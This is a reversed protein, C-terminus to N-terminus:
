EGELEPNKDVLEGDEYRYAISLNGEQDYWKALGHLKGDVYPAEQMLTGNDYYKTLPGNLVGNNYNRTEIVKKRKYVVYEGDLQDSHYYSKTEVYGQKDFKLAVGQKKGENFTELLTIAGEKDYTIWSGHKLGNLVDGEAVIRQDSRQTAKSLGEVDGYASVEATSPILSTELIVPTENQCAMMVGLVLMLWISGIRNM